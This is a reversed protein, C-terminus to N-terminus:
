ATRAAPLTALFVAPPTTIINRSGYKVAQIKGQQLLTYTTSRGVGAATAWDLISWGYREIEKPAHADGAGTEGQEAPQSAEDSRGSGNRIARELRKIAAADMM